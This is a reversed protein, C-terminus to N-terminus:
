KILNKWSDRAELEDWWRKVNPYKEFIDKHGLDHLIKGAPLHSLDTLTINEGALYKQKGLIDNYVKFAEEIGAVHKM